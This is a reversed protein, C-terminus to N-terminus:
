CNSLGIRGKQQHLILLGSSSLSKNLTVHYVLPSASGLVPRWLGLAAEVLAGSTFWLHLGSIFLAFM